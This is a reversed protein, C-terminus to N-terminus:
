FASKIKNVYLNCNLDYKKVAQNLYYIYRSIQLKNPSIDIINKLEDKKLELEEKTYVCEGTFEEAQINVNRAYYANRNTAKAACSACAM